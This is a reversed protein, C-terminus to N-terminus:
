RRTLGRNLHHAWLPGEYLFATYGQVLTAGAELRERVESATTVGGVSILCLEPGVAARLLRLM